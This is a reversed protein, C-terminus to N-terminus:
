KRGESLTKKLGPRVADANRWHRPDRNLYYSSVRGDPFRFTEREAVLSPRIVGEHVAISHAM